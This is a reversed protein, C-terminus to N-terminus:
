AEEVCFVSSPQYRGGLPVGKWGGQALAARIMTKTLEPIDERSLAERTDMWVVESNESGDSRPEGSVYVARFVVYWDHTNFRVGILEQPEITVGTEELYERRVAEQPSEGNEMYGGPIILKGNGAGYTHRGLLVQGDRICVASVSQTYNTTGDAM